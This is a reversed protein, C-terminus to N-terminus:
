APEFQPGGVGGAARAPPSAVLVPRGAPVVFACRFFVFRGADFLAKLTPWECPSRGLLAEVSEKCDDEGVVGVAAIADLATVPQAEGSSAAKARDTAMLLRAELRPLLSKRVKKSRAGTWDETWGGWRTYEIVAFWMARPQDKSPSLQRVSTLAQPRRYKNTGYTVFDATQAPPNWAPLPVVSFRADWQVGGAGEVTPAVGRRSGDVIELGCCTSLWEDMRGDIYAEYVQGSPSLFSTSTADTHQEDLQAKIQRLLTLTLPEAAIILFSM